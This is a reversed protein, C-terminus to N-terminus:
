AYVEAMTELSPQTILLTDANLVDVVNLSDARIVVVKPLNRASIELNADSGTAVVLVRGDAKLATLFGALDRTKPADLALEDVVRIAGDGYKATLVGHLAARKMRKPLRQEYSRPHPGFVVGGGAYHPARRSGQRARGTGKQRYPKAGGGAVEGRTKTDATGTRRAALQATAAQHILAENIEANFLVDPLEVTGLEKGQKSFLTTSPM